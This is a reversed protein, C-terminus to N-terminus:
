EYSIRSEKYSRSENLPEDPVDEPTYRIDRSVLYLKRYM